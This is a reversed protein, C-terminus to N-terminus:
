NEHVRAVGILTSTQYSVEVEIYTNPSAGHILSGSASRRLFLRFVNGSGTKGIMLFGGGVTGVPLMVQTLVFGDAAPAFSLPEDATAAILPALTSFRTARGRVLAGTEEGSRIAPLVGEFFIDLDAGEPLAANRLLPGRAVSDFLQLGVRRDATFTPVRIPDQTGALRIFRLAPAWLVSVPPGSRFDRPHEIARLYVDFRYLHGLLLPSVVAVTSDLPVLRTTVVTSGERVDVAYDRADFSLLNPSHSWTLGVSSDNASWARVDAVPQFARLGDNDVPVDRCSQIGWALVLVAASWHVTRM